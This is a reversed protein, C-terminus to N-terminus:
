HFTVKKIVRGNPLTVGGVAGGGQLFPWRSYSSSAGEEGVEVDDSARRMRRAEKGEDVDWEKEEVVM